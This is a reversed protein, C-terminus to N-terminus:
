SVSIVCLNVSDISLEDYHFKSKQLGSNTAYIIIHVAYLDMQNIFILARIACEYNWEKIEKNITM